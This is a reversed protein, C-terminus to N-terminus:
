RVPHTSGNALHDDGHGNSEILSSPSQCAAHLRSIRQIIKTTSRNAVFPLIRVEGGHREVVEAEPLSARTYDGGKVFVDPKIEAILETPTAENFVILHDVCSLAALVDLRDEQRNIPRARGKLMKVSDDSNIAVILVDGLAKAQNL